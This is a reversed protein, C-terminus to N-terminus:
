HRRDVSSPEYRARLRASGRAVGAAQRCPKTPREDKTREGGPGRGNREMRRGMRQGDMDEIIVGGGAVDDTDDAAVVRGIIWGSFGAEKASVVAREADEAAFAAVLGIGMNFTAYMEDPEVGGLAALWSFVRPITWTGERVVAVSGEPLMRPINEFFGGGTIHAIGRPRLGASRWGNLAGVYVRTPMLLVEGLPRPGLDQVVINPDLRNEEFVIRRVLSFGNSHLGSSALGVLVDGPRVTTKGDILESRDAVGVAFGALDYEGPRYFGPMEATEGGVLACGAIRCGAAVGEVVEAVLGPDMKGVALYDLFFLPRAGQAIVDNVCMAVADIGVTHHRGMMFAVKLKTGVGDTGAVLVPEALGPPLAVVSGFGGVGALVESTLTTRALKKIADVARYGAEIDVGAEKYTLGAGHTLGGGRTFDDVAAVEGRASKIATDPIVVPYAGDFCASCLRDGEVGVAGFLGDISLFRVSDAGIVTEIEEMNRGTALLEASKSTDIGYFCPYRYPPSAVRLHVERAGAARLLDVTKASTTGRVVSDDILVVRKGCVVSTVPNIKVQVGARRLEDTPQIFTRGVYRNKVLGIEFPLGAAEAYGLAASTGSDPAAVVLDAEVPHERALAAGIRRRVQHVNKRRLESDPRAFYIYEFVCLAEREAAAFRESALGGVADIVVVEGPEVDRIFEAGINSLACTESALVWAEGLRGLCLPRIGRPDRFGILSEPSLLVVAFGGSLRRAAATVATRLDFGGFRAILNLIVESDTTTQFVSGGGVLESRLKQANVLNGNHALALHGQATFASLPQANAINSEGTTSYRVHGIAAWGELGKLTKEDFVEAVLGMGKVLAISSGGEGGGTERGNVAIGASEQGRHQLAFLGLYTVSAANLKRTPDLIGFVGCEERPKDLFPEDNLMRGGVPKDSLM